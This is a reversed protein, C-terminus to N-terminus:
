VTLILLDKWLAYICQECKLKKSISYVVFGAIYEIVSITYESLKDPVCCYDQHDSPLLNKDVFESDELLISKAVTINIEQISSIPASSCTLLSLNELPICNGVGGEKIRCKILLRKYATIFQMVTPNNNCGLRTRISGFFLEVHDQSLKYMPFYTLKNNLIYNNYIQEINKLSIILGVFGTKRKHATLFPGNPIKLNSIYSILDRCINKTFDSNSQCLAKKYSMGSLNKSNLIDFVTNMKRIFNSTGESGIFEPLKLEYRCFDMADAVSQSMTHTALKVKMKQKFFQIHSTRLKNALHLGENEQLKNLEVVYKWDM